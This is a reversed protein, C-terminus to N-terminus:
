EEKKKRLVIAMAALVGVGLIGAGAGIASSCGSGKDEGSNGANGSNVPPEPQATAEFVVSITVNESITVSFTGNEHTVSTGNVKIEKITYGANATVTYSVVEGYEGSMKAPSISGQNTNIEYGIAYTEKSWKAELTINGLLEDSIIDVKEDGIYWGDFVNGAYTASLLTFAESEITFGTINERANEGGNLVYTITYEIPAFTVTIQTDETVTVTLVGDALTEIKEVGNVKVSSIQYHTDATFTVSFQENEKVVQSEVSASGNEGASVTVNCDKPDSDLAVAFVLNEKAITTFTYAGSESKLQATVDVGNLTAGIVSDGTALGNVTFVVESGYKASTVNESITAGNHAEHSVSYSKVVGSYAVNGRNKKYTGDESAAALASIGQGDVKIESYTGDGNVVAVRGLLYTADGTNDFANFILRFVHKVPYGLAYTTTGGVSTTVEKAGVYPLILTGKANAPITVYGNNMELSNVTGDAQVFKITGSVINGGLATVDGLNNWTKVSFIFPSDNLNEIAVALASGGSFEENTENGTAFFVGSKNAIWLEFQSQLRNGGQVMITENDDSVLNVSTTTEFASKMFATDDAVLGLNKIGMTEGAVSNFYVLFNSYIETPFTTPANERPEFCGYEAEANVTFPIYVEGKFGAPVFSSRYAFSNKFATCDSDPKFYALGNKTMWGYAPKCNAADIETSFMYVQISKKAAGGSNDVYLRIGDYKSIDAKGTASEFSSKLWGSETTGTFTDAKVLIADVGSDVTFSNATGDAKYASWLTKSATFTGSAYTGYEIDGFNWVNKAYIKNTRVNLASIGTPSSWVSAPIILYGDVLKTTTASAGNVVNVAASAGNGTTTLTTSVGNEVLYMSAGSTMYNTASGILDFRLAENAIAPVLTQIRIRIAANTATLDTNEFPFKINIIGSATDTSPLNVSLANFSAYHKGNWDRAANSNFAPASNYFAFANGSVNSATATNAEPIYSSRVGRRASMFFDVVDAETQYTYAGGSHNIDPYETYKAWGGASQIANIMDITVEPYVVPDLAGHTAWVNVSTLNKAAELDNGAGALPMAAAYRTPYRSLLDWTALGGMSHGTVCQREEDVSYDQMIKDQLEVVAKLDPSIAFDDISYHGTWHSVEVWKHNFRCQPILMICPNEAQNEITTMKSLLPKFVNIQTTNDTGQGGHGHLMTIMPYEKSADYNEPIWLRYKLTVEEGYVTTTYSLDQLNEMYDAAIDASAATKPMIAGLVTCGVSVIFAGIVTSRKKITKM